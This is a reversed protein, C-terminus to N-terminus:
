PRPRRKLSSVGYSVQVITFLLAPVATLPSGIRIHSAIAGLTTFTLAAAAWPALARVLITTACVLQLGCVAFILAPPYDFRQSLVHARVELVGALPAGVGYSLALFWGALHLRRGDHTSETQDARAM